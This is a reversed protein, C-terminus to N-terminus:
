GAEMLDICKEAIMMTAAATNASLLDPMVSADVVRLHSIGHVRLRADVVAGPDDAPGMRCTGVPHYGTSGYSRAYDLWEDDSNVDRGPLLESEVVAQMAPAFMVARALKIAAVVIRRDIEADLFNPQIVPSQAPDASGIRVFGRSQPRLQFGGCTLGPKDDIHGIMGLKYSAPFYSLVLDPTPKSPDSRGFAYIYVPSIGLISPRGMMWAAMEQLLPWGRVRQNITAVHAKARVIVRPVYHDRLNEGVGPLVRTVPVNAAALVDAPGIGSLQLLKPSGIAGACVIVESRARVLRSTAEGQGRYEVGTARGDTVVIRSVTAGTIVRVGFKQVAPHLFGHAASWRRGRLINGQTYAAGTQIGSNHDPDRPIGMSEAAALFREGVERRWPTVTVPMPGRDGRASGPTADVFRESKRFYLLVDRWAWGPNGAAAWRDFDAAQGRNYVAGNVASSGGLVKGQVLPTRRGKTGASGEYQFQWTVAPDKLTRTWGVPVRIWRSDDAPGAELVCVSRGKEGLRHAVISGATGGGVVVYDFEEAATAM